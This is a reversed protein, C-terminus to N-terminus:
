EPPLWGWEHGKCFWATVPRWLGRAYTPEVPVAICQGQLDRGVLLHSARRGKRNKRVSYPTLLVQLVHDPSIGHAAMEEENEDDFVFDDVQISSTM